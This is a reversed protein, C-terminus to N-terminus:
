DLLVFSSAVRVGRGFGGAVAGGRGELNVGVMERWEGARAESTNCAEEEGIFPVEEGNEKREEDEEEEVRGGVNLGEELGGGGNGVEEVIGGGGEIAHTLGLEM